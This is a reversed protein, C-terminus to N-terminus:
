WQVLSSIHLVELDLVIGMLQFITLHGRQALDQGLHFFKLPHDYTSQHRFPHHQLKKHHLYLQSLLHFEVNVSQDILTGVM